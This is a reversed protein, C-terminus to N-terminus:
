FVDAEIRDGFTQYSSILYDEILYLLQKIKQFIQGLEYIGAKDCFFVEIRYIKIPFGTKGRLFVNSEVM